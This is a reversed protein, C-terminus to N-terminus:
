RWTSSKRIFCHHITILQYHNMKKSSGWKTLNKQSLSCWFRRGCNRGYSTALVWAALNNNGLFLLIQRLSSTQLDDLTADLLTILLGPSTVFSNQYFAIWNWLVKWPNFIVFQVFQSKGLDRRIFLSLIIGIVWFHVWLVLGKFFFSLM